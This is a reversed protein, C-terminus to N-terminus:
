GGKNPSGRCKLPNHLVEARKQAQSFTCALYGIRIRGGKTQSSTLICPNCLVEARKQARSFATILRAIRM